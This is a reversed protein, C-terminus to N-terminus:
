NMREFKKEKMNIIKILLQIITIIRIIEDVSPLNRHLAYSDIM